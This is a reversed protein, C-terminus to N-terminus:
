ISYILEGEHGGQFSSVAIMGERTVAPFRGMRPVM